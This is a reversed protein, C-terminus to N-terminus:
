QTHSLDVDMYYKRLSSRRFLISGLSVTQTNLVQVPVCLNCNGQDLLQEYKQLRPIMARYDRSEGAPVTFGTSTSTLLPTFAVHGQACDRVMMIVRESITFDAGTEITRTHDTPNRVHVRFSIVSPDNENLGVEAPKSLGYAILALGGFSGFIVLVVVLIPQNLLWHKIGKKSKPM